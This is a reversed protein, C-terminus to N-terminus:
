NLSLLTKYLHVILKILLAVIVDIFLLTSQTLYFIQKIFASESSKQKVTNRLLVQLYLQAIGDNRLPRAVVSKL